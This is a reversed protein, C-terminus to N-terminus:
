WAHQLALDVPEEEVPLAPLVLAQDYPALALHPLGEDDLLEALRVVVVEPDRQVPLRVAGYELALAREVLDERVDAAPEPVDVEDGSTGQDEQVFYLGAALRVAEELVERDVPPEVHHGGSGEQAHLVPTLPAAAGVPLRHREVGHPVHLGVLHAREVELLEQPRGARGPLGYLDDPPGNAVADGQAVGEQLHEAPHEPVEHDDAPHRLRHLPEDVGPAVRLCARHQRGDDVAAPVVYRLVALPNVPDLRQLAEVGYGGLQGACVLPEHVGAHLRARPGPPRRLLVGVVEQPDLVGAVAVEHVRHALEGQRQPPVRDGVQELHVHRVGADEDVHPVVGRVDDVRQDAPVVREVHALHGLVGHRLAQDLAPQPRVVVPLGVAHPAHLQVEDELPSPADYDHLHLGAPAAVRRRQVHHVGAEADVPLDHQVAPVDALPVAAHLVVREERGREEVLQLGLRLM